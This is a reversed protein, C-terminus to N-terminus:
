SETRWVHFINKRHYWSLQSDKVKIHTLYTPSTEVWTYNSLYVWYVPILQKWLQTIEWALAWLPCRIAFVGVKGLVTVSTFCSIVWVLDYPVPSRKASGKGPFLHYVGDLISGFNKMWFLMKTLIWVPAHASPGTMPNVHTALWWFGSLVVWIEETVIDVWGFWPEQARSNCTSSKLWRVWLWKRQSHAKRSESM